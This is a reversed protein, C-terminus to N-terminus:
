KKYELLGLVSFFIDSPKVQPTLYLEDGYFIGGSWM